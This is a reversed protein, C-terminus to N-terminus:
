SGGRRWCPPIDGVGAGRVRVQTAHIVLEGNKPTCLNSVNGMLHLAEARAEETQLLSHPSLPPHSLPTAISLPSRRGMSCKLYFLSHHPSGKGGALKWVQPLHLNM